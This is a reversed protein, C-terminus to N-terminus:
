RPNTLVGAGQLLASFLRFSTLWDNWSHWGYANRAHDFLAQWTDSDVDRPTPVRDEPNDLWFSIRDHRDDFGISDGDCRRYLRVDWDPDNHAVEGDEDAPEDYGPTYGLVLIYHVLWRGEKVSVRAIENYQTNM